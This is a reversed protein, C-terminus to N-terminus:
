LPLKMDRVSEHTLCAGSIVSVPCLHRGDAGWVTMFEVGWLGERGESGLRGELAPREAPRHAEQSCVPGSVVHFQQEDWSSAWAAPGARAGLLSGGESFAGSDLVVEMM